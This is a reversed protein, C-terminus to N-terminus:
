AVVIKQTQYCDSDRHHNGMYPLDEIKLTPQNQLAVEVRDGSSQETIRVDAVDTVNLSEGGVPIADHYVDDMCMCVDSISRWGNKTYMCVYM